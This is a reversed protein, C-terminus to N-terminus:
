RSNRFKSFCKANSFRNDVNLFSYSSETSCCFCLQCSSARWFLPAFYKGDGRALLFRTLDFSPFCGMRRVNIGWGAAFSVTRCCGSGASMESSRNLPFLVRVSTLLQWRCIDQFSWSKENLNENLNEPSTAETNSFCRQELIDAWAYRKEMPTNHCLPALFCTLFIVTNNNLHFITVVMEWNEDMCLIDWYYLGHIPINNPTFPKLEVM